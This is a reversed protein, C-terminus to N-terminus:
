RDLYHQHYEEAPYFVGAPLIDTKIDKGQDILQKKFAEAIKKQEDGVFFIASKYQPKKQQGPDHIKWFVELLEYFSIKRPDFEVAVAESHGTTGSCVERYTPNESHGGTYGAVTDLVGKLQSFSKQIGWFCGAAFIAKAM